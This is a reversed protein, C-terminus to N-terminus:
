VSYETCYQEAHHEYMPRPHEKTYTCFSVGGRSRRPLDFLSEVLFTDFFLLAEYLGTMSFKLLMMYWFRPYVQVQAGGDGVM